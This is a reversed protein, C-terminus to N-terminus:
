ALGEYGWPGVERTGGHRNIKLENATATRDGILDSALNFHFSPDLNLIVLKLVARLAFVAGGFQDL